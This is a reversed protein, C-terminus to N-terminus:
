KYEKWDAVIRATAILPGMQSSVPAEVNRLLVQFYYKVFKIKVSWKFPLFLANKTTFCIYFKGEINYLYYHNISNM